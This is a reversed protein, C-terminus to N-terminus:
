ESTLLDVSLVDVIAAIVEADTARESLELINNVLGFKLADGWAVVFIFLEESLLVTKVFAGSIIVVPRVFEGFELIIPMIDGVFDEKLWELEM